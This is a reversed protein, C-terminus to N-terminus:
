RHASVGSVWGYEVSHPRPRANAVPSHVAGDNHPDTQRRSHAAVLKSAPDFAVFTYQDGLEPNLKEQPTLHRQKKGVYCWLEDAEIESCPLNRLHTDLLTACHEGTDVLLRM